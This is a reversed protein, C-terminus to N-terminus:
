RQRINLIRFVQSRYKQGLNDLSFLVRSVDCATLRVCGMIPLLVVHNTLSICGPCMLVGLYADPFCEAYDM